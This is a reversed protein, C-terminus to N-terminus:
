FRSPFSRFAHKRQLVALPAKSPDSIKLQKMQLCGLVLMLFSSPVKESSSCMWLWQVCVRLQRCLCFLGTICLCSMQCYMLGQELGFASSWIGEMLPLLQHVFLMDPGPM